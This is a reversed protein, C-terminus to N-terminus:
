SLDFRCYVCILGARARGLERENGNSGMRRSMDERITCPDMVGAHVFKPFGM